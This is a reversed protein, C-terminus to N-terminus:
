WICKFYYNLTPIRQTSKKNAKQAKKSAKETPGLADRIAFVTRSANFPQMGVSLALKLYHIAPLIGNAVFEYFAEVPINHHSDPAYRIAQEIHHQAAEISKKIHHQEAETPQKTHPHGIPVPNIRHASELHLM